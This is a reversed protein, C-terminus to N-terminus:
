MQKNYVPKKISWNGMQHDYKKIYDAGKSKQKYDREDQIVISQLFGLPQNCVRDIPHRNFNQSTKGGIKSM